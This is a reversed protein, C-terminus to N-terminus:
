VVMGLLEILYPFLKNRGFTTSAIFNYNFKKLWLYIFLFHKNQLMLPSSLVVEGSYQEELYRSMLYKLFRNITM